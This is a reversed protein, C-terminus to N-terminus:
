EPKNSPAELDKTKRDTRFSDFDLGDIFGEIAQISDLMDEMRLRWARPPM